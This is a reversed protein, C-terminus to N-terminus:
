PVHPRLGPAVHGLERQGMGPLPRRVDGGFQDRLVVGRLLDELGRLVEENRDIERGHRPREPLPRDQLFGGVPFDHTM